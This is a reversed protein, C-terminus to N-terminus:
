EKSAVVQTIADEPNVGERYETAYPFLWNMATPESLAIRLEGSPMIQDIADEAPIPVIKEM